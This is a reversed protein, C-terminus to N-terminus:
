NLNLVLNCPILGVDDLRIQLCLHLELSKKYFQSTFLYVAESSSYFARVRSRKIYLIFTNVKFRSNSLFRPVM